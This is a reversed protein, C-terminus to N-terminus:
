NPQNMEYFKFFSYINYECQEDQFDITFTIPTIDFVNFKQM